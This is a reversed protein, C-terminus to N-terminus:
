TRAEFWDGSTGCYGDVRRCEEATVIRTNGWVPDPASKARPENCRTFGVYETMYAFHTCDKCFNM